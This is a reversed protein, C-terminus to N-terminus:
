ALTGNKEMVWGRAEWDGDLLSAFVRPGPLGPCMLLCPEVHDSGLTWWCSVPGPPASLSMLEQASEGLAFYRGPVELPSPAISAGSTRRNEGLPLVLPTDFAALDFAPDLAALALGELAEFWADTGAFAAPDTPADIEQGVILPFYRGVTDVSPVLVGAVTKPGCCGAACVFRWLPSVLYLELWREGLADRSASISTQLWEDLANIFARSLRRGIFDGRAPLKGYFGPAQVVEPM